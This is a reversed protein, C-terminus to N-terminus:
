VLLITQDALNSLTNKYFWVQGPFYIRYNEDQILSTAMKRFKDFKADVVKSKFCYVTFYM